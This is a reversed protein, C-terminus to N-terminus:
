LRPPPSPITPHFKSFLQTSAFTQSKVSFEPLISQCLQSILHPFKEIQTISQENQPIQDSGSEISFNIFAVLNHHAHATSHDHFKHVHGNGKLLDGAHSVFHFAETLFSIQTNSKPSLAGAVYFAIM